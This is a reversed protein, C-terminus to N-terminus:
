LAFHHLYRMIGIIRSKNIPLRYPIYSPQPPNYRIQLICPEPPRPQAQSPRGPSRPPPQPRPTRGQTLPLRPAAALCPDFSDIRGGGSFRADGRRSLVLIYAVDVLILIQSETALSHMTERAADALCLDQSVNAFFCCPEEHNPM